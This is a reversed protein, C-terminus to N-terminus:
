LGMAKGWIADWPTDNGLLHLRLKEIDEVVYGARLFRDFKNSPDIRSLGSGRVHFYAVNHGVEELIELRNNKEKESQDLLPITGPGGPIFIINKGEKRENPEPFSYFLRFELPLEEGSPNDSSVDKVDRKEGGTDSVEPGFGMEKDTWEKFESKEM